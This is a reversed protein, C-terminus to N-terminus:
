WIDKYFKKMNAKGGFVTLISLKKLTSVENQLLKIQRKMTNFERRSPKSKISIDEIHNADSQDDDEKFNTRKRLKLM